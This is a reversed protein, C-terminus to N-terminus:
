RVRLAQQATVVPEVNKGNGYPNNFFFLERSEDATGESRFAPLNLNLSAGAWGLQVLFEQKRARSSCLFANSTWIKFCVDVIHAQVLVGIM